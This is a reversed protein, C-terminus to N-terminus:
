VPIHYRFGIGFRTQGEEHLERCWKVEGLATSRIVEEAASLGSTDLVKEVRIFVSAGPMAPSETVLYGGGRSVNVMRGSHFNATNFYAWTVEAHCRQRSESRKEHSPVM